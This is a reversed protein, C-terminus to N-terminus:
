EEPPLPLDIIFVAGGLDSAEVRISGAHDLIIKKVIALGLGTGHERTSEYPEFVRERREPEIGPGNDEVRLTLHPAGERMATATTVHVKIPSVM